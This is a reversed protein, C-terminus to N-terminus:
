EEQGVMKLIAPHAAYVADALEDYYRLNQEIWDLDILLIAAVALTEVGAFYTGQAGPYTGSPITKSEYIRWGSHDEFNDFDGDDVPVLKIFQGQLDAKQAFESNLGGVYILCQADVGRVIKNIARTGDLAVTPVKAYDSDMQTFARWTIAHSSGASGVIITFEDPHNELDGVDNIGADRNCFLHVYEDYLYGAFEMDLQAEPHDAKFVHFTDAQVVVSDCESERIRQLNDVSGETNIVEVEIETDALQQAIKLGAGHHSSDKHGTCLRLQTDALAGALGWAWGALVTVFVLITRMPSLEEVTRGM